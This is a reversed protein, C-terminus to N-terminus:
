HDVTFEGDIMRGSTVKKAEAFAHNVKTVAEAQGQVDLDSTREFAERVAEKDSSTRDGDTAMHASAFIAMLPKCSDPAEMVMGVPDANLRRHFCLYGVKMFERDIHQCYIFATNYDTWAPADASGEEFAVDEGHSKYVYAWRRPSWKRPRGASRWLSALDISNKAIAEQRELDIYLPNDELLEFPNNPGDEPHPKEPVPFSALQMGDGEQRCIVVLFLGPPVQRSAEKMEALAERDAWTTAETEDVAEPDIPGVFVNGDIGEFVGIVPSPYGLELMNRYYYRVQGSTRRLLRQVYAEDM